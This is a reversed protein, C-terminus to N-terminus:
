LGVETVLAVEDGDVMPYGDRFGVGARQWNLFRDGM